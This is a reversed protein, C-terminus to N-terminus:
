NRCAAPLFISLIAIAVILAAVTGSGYFERASTKKQVPIETSLLIIGTALKPLRM